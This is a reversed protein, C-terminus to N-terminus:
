RDMAVVLPGVVLMHHIFNVVFGPSAIAVHHLRTLPFVIYCMSLWIIAGVAPGVTAVGIGGRAARRLAAWNRYVIYYLTAWGFAVATHIALGILMGETGLAYAEKGLLAAAVGQFVRAFPPHGFFIAGLAYASFGDVIALVCGTRAVTALDGRRASPLELATTSMTAVNEANCYQLV